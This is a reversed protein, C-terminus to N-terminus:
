SHGAQKNRGPPRDPGGATAQAIAQELDITLDEVDELGVSIRVLDDPIAHASGTKAAHTMTAPHEILSEVAGLSVALAFLRTNECVARAIDGSRFRLTLVSGYGRMQRSALGHQPHDPLGPYRIESVDAHNLFRQALFAASTSAAAARVHLTKLGRSTLWCDHPSAVSGTANQWYALEDRVLTSGSVGVRRKPLNVDAAVVIAGGVLDSHGAISKTTSHIVVDAGLALPQQLAPSAFTNDVVLVAGASHALQAISQIDVIELLPNSPTELWLVSLALADLTPRLATPDALAIPIATRGDAPLITTFLRHTGGYVDAGYGIRDGPRTLVRLLLDEAAMGSPLAFGREGAEVAALAVELSTRTPNGSRAYDYGARPVGVQDM